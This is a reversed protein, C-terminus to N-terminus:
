SQTTLAAPVYASLRDQAFYGAFSVRHVSEAQGGM